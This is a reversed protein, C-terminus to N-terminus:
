DNFLKYDENNKSKERSRNSVLCICPTVTYTLTKLIRNNQEYNLNIRNNTRDIFNTACIIVPSKHIM